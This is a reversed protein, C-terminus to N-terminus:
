AERSDVFSDGALFTPQGCYAATTWILQRIKNHRFDTGRSNDVILPQGYYGHGYYVAAVTGNELVGVSCAFDNIPNYCKFIFKLSM